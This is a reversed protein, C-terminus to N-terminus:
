FGQIKCQDYLAIASTAYAEARPGSGNYKRFATRVDGGSSKLNDAMIHGTLDISTNPNLLDPITYATGYLTRSPVSPNPWRGLSNNYPYITIQTIGIGHSHNIVSWDLGYLPPANINFPDIKGSHNDHGIANPDGGSSEKKLVVAM